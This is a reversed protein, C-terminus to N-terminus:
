AQRVFYHVTSDGYIKSDFLKLCSPVEPVAEKGRAEYLLLGGPEIRGYSAELKVVKEFWGKDYPPDCFVVRVTPLKPYALSADRKFLHIEPVVLEQSEFCQSAINLNDQLTKLTGPHSEVFWAQAAGNSLAEIGWAGTGCFLDVVPAGELISSQSQSESQWRFNRLVNFTAQRLRESSPRTQDGRPSRLAVGRLVGSSVKLM